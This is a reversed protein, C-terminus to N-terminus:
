QPRDDSRFIMFFAFLLLAGSELQHTWVAWRQGLYAVRIALAGLYFGLFTWSIDARRARQTVLIGLM